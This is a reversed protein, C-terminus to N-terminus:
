AIPLASIKEALPVGEMIRVMGRVENILEVAEEVPLCHLEGILAAAHRRIKRDQELREAYIDRNTNPM